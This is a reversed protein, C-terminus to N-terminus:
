QVRGIIIQLFSTKRRPYINAEIKSLRDGGIISQGCGLLDSSSELIM